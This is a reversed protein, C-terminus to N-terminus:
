FRYIVLYLLGEIIYVKSEPCNKVSKQINKQFIKLFPPSRCKPM